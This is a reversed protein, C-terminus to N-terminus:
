GCCVLFNTCGIRIYRTSFYGRVLIKPLMQFTSIDTTWRRILCPDLVNKLATKYTSICISNSLGMGQDERTLPIMVSSLDAHQLIDPSLTHKLVYAVTRFVRDDKGFNHMNFHDRELGRAVFRPEGTSPGDVLIADNKSVLMVQIQNTEWMVLSCNYSVKPIEENGVIRGVNSEQTEWLCGVNPRKYVHSTEMFGKRLEDLVDSGHRFSEFLGKEVHRHIKAALGPLDNQFWEHIGRFPSGFFIAADTYRFLGFAEGHKAWDNNTMEAMM